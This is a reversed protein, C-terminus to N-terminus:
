STQENEDAKEIIVRLSKKDDELIQLNQDSVHAMPRNSGVTKVRVLGGWTLGNWGLPQNALRVFAHEGNSLDSRLKDDSEKDIPVAWIGENGSGEHVLNVKVFGFDKELKQITAELEDITM